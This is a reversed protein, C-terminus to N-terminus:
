AVAAEARDKTPHTLDERESNTIHAEQPSNMKFEYWVNAMKSGRFCAIINQWHQEADIQNSPATNEM